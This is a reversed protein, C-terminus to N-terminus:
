RVLEEPLLSAHAAFLEATMARIQDLTLVASTLPDLMVAHEVHEREGTLAARVALEQVNVNTRNVAACQPPLAGYRVPQIGSKDVLCAVEVSCGAPLNDILGRNPV